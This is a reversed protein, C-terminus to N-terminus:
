MEEECIELGDKILTKFEPRREIITLLYTKLESALAEYKKRSLALEYLELFILWEDPYKQRADRFIDKLTDFGTRFERIQRLSRFIGQYKEYLPERHVTKVPSVYPESPYESTDAAGAFVSVVKEGVGLDYDGWEPEFLLKGGYTVTCNEFTMLLIKGYKNKRVYHLRGSINVGSEYELKVESGTKIGAEELQKLTMDELPSSFGKVKGVATGYGKPHKDIGHGILMKERECLITPGTTQVYATNGREDKEAATFVGSIQLGSSLECTALAGSDIAKLVSEYGGKRLAMGDAFENLVATLHSFDPTVFLHPQKTTIDFGTDAATIDYPIKKVQRGLCTRSEGISSLLGAGYIKPRDLDGILGYEVTWWHLNRIRAMESPQGMDNQIVTLEREAKKIEEEKSYANEKLISLKRIAEYLENDRKSSIAKSGIEGFLRLYEAYEPDVIIPAHGAAEHVIDPAPTYEIHNINRMDAAIVLVNYSQFEMFAAPPIFGDVCVAGWGIKSLIENMENINPIKEIGIGTKILGEVYSPHASQKLYRFNVRMIYRWVAHDVATYNEYKQDVVYQHLHEPLRRLVEQTSQM